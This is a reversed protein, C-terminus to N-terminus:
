TKSCCSNNLKSTRKHECTSIVSEAEGEPIYKETMGMSM